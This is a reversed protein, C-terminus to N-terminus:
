CVHGCAFRLQQFSAAGVPVHEKATDGAHCCVPLVCLLGPWALVEFMSLIGVIVHEQLPKEQRACASTSMFRHLAKRSVCRIRPSPGEGAVRVSRLEVCM